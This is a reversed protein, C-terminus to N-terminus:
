APLPTGRRGLSWLADAIVQVAAAPAILVMLMLFAHYALFYTSFIVAAEALLLVATMSLLGLLLAVPSGSKLFRWAGLASCGIAALLLEFGNVRDAWVLYVFRVPRWAPVLQAAQLFVGRGVSRLKLWYTRLMEGPYARWLNFYFRYLAREYEPGLYKVGPVVRQAVELGSADDWFISERRSLDNPPVGLAMVLPHAVTHYTYNYSKGGSAREIPRIVALQFLAAGAVFAGTAAAAFRPAHRRPLRRLRAVAAATLLFGALLMPWYSTRLNAAFAAIVGAAVSAGALRLLSGRSVPRAALSCLGSWALPIVFLFPYVTYQYRNVKGLVVVSGLVLAFGLVASMGGELCAFGFLGVALVRVWLLARGVADVSWSPRAVWALSMMLMLANENNTFPESLSGCYQAISGAHAVILVPAPVM